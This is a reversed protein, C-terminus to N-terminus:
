GASSPELFILSNPKLQFLPPGRVCAVLSGRNGDVENEVIRRPPLLTADIEDPLQGPSWGIEFLQIQWRSVLVRNRVGDQSVRHGDNLRSVGALDEANM